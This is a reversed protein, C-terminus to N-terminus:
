TWVSPRWEIRPKPTRTRDAGRLDRATAVVQDGVALAARAIALGFGSSTGTILWSRPSTNENMAQVYPRRLAVSLM